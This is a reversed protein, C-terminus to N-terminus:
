VVTVYIMATIQKKTLPPLCVFCVLLDVDILLVCYVRGTYTMGVMM